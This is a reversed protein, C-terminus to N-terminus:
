ISFNMESYDYFNGRSLTGLGGGAGSNTFGGPKTYSYSLKSSSSSSYSSSKSLILSSSYSSTHRAISIYRPASSNTPSSKSIPSMSSSLISKSDVVGHRVLEGLEMKPNVAGSYSM